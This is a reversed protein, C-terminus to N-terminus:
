EGWLDRLIHPFAVLLTAAPLAIWPNLGYGVTEWQHALGVLFMASMTLMQIALDRM